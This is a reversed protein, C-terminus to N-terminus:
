IKILECCELKLSIRRKHINTQTEKILPFGLLDLLRENLRRNKGKYPHCHIHIAPNFNLEIIAYNDRTAGKTYDPIIMDLGTIKVNLAQAAKVAIQKYSQDVDDTYDISDGGTSINSNERLFVTEDIGPITEFDKDQAKLFMMEAESLQIKELPTHYGKGRRPDKNKEIVLERITNLGNGRVNAPIRNLIGVVEDAMVFIRFEKGEIFEEILVDSGFDFAIDRDFITRDTNSKLITIGLGFNTLKPKIVVARERFYEFSDKASAKDGYDLGKPVRLGHEELIQKTIVKNEMVLISAYNDLSTKTAQSVYQVNEDRYLRVFNQSRDLIDFGIGRRVAERLLLQTSLEMDELGKFNFINQKSQELYDKAKELHFPIFGRLDTQNLIQQVIRRDPHDVMQQAYKLANLYKPNEIELAAFLDLMQQIM